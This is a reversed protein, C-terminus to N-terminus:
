GQGNPAEPMPMWNDPHRKRHDVCLWFGELRENGPQHWFGVTVGTDRFYLLVRKGDKPATEIPQWEM